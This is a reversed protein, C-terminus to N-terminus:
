VSLRCCFHHFLGVRAYPAHRALWPTVQSLCVDPPFATFVDGPIGVVGDVDGGAGGEVTM